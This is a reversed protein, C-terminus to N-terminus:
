RGGGQTALLVLLLVGAVAGYKVHALSPAIGAWPPSTDRPESYDSGGAGGDSGSSGGSSGGSGATNTTTQQDDSPDHPDPTTPDGARQANEGQQGTSTVEGDQVVTTTTTQHTGTSTEVDKRTEMGIATEGTQLNEAHVVGAQTSQLAVETGPDAGEAGIRRLTDVTETTLNEGTQPNFYGVQGGDGVEVVTEDGGYEERYEKAYNAPTAEEGDELTVMKGQVWGVKLRGSDTRGARGHDVDDSDDSGGSGATTTTTERDDDQEGDDGANGMWWSASHGLSGDPTDDQTTAGETETGQFRGM